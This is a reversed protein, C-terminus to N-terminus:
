FHLFTDFNTLEYNISVGAETIKPLILFFGLFLM